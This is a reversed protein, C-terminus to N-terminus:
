RLLDQATYAGPGSSVYAHDLNRVHLLGARRGCRSDRPRGAAGGAHHDNRHDHVRATLRLAASLFNRTRTVAAVGRRAAAAPCENRIPLGQEWGDRRMAWFARQPLWSRLWGRCHRDRHNRVRDLLM